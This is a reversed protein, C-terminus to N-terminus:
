VCATMLLLPVDTVNRDAAAPVRVIRSTGGGIFTHTYKTGPVGATVGRGGAALASTAIATHTDLPCIERLQASSHRRIHPSLIDWFAILHM